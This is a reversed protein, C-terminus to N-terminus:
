GEAEEAAQGSPIASLFMVPTPKCADLIRKLDGVSMEYEIRPNM